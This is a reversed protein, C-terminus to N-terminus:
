HRQPNGRRKRGRRDVGDISSDAWIANLDPEFPIGLQKATEAGRAPDDDWLCALQANENNQIATAYEM